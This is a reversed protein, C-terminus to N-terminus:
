WTKEEEDQRRLSEELTDMVRRCPTFGKSLLAAPARAMICPRGAGDPMSEDDFRNGFAATDALPVGRERSLIGVGNGKGALTCDLGNNGAGDPLTGDLDGATLRIM